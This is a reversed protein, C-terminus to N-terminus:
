LFHLLDLLSEQKEPICGFANHSLTEQGEQQHHVPRKIISYPNTVLQGTVLTQSGFCWSCNSIFLPPPMTHFDLGSQPWPISCPSGTVASSQTTQTFVTTSYWPGTPFAIESRGGGQPREPHGAIKNSTSPLGLLMKSNPVVDLVMQPSPKEKKERVGEGRWSHKPTQHFCNAFQM